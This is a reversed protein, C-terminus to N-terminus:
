GNRDNSIVLKWNGLTDTNVYMVIETMIEIKTKGNRDNDRKVRGNRDNDRNERVMETMIEKEVVETMIEITQVIETM